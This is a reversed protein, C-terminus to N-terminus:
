KRREWIKNGKYKFTKVLPILLIVILPWLLVIILGQPWAFLAFKDDEVRLLFGLAIGISFYVLSFVLM